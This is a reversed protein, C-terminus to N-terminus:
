SRPAEPNEADSSASVAEKIQEVVTECLEPNLLLLADLQRSAAAENKSALLFLVLSCNAAVSDPEEEIADRFAREARRLEDLGFYAEGLFRLVDANRGFRRLYSKCAAVVDAHRSLKSAIRITQELAMGSEPLQAADRLLELAEDPREQRERVLALAIRPAAADPALAMGEMAAAEAGELDGMGRRYGSLLFHLVKDRVGIRLAEEGVAIALDLREMAAHINMLQVVAALNMPDLAVARKALPLAHLLRGSDALDVVHQLLDETTTFPQDVM